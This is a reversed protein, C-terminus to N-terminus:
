NEKMEEDIRHEAGNMASNSVSLGRARASSTKGGPPPLPASAPGSMNLNTSRLTPPLSPLAPLPATPPPAAAPIPLTLIRRAARRPRFAPRLGTGATQPNASSCSGSRMRGVLSTENTPMGAMGIGLTGYLALAEGGLSAPRNRVATGALQKQLHFANGATRSPSRIANMPSVSQTLSSRRRRLRPRSDGKAGQPSPVPTARESEPTPTVSRRSDHVSTDLFEPIDLDMLSEDNPSRLPSSPYSSSSSFEADDDWPESIGSQYTNRRQLKPLPTRPALLGSAFFASYTSSMPAVLTPSDM